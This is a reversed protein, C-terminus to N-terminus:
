SVCGGPYAAGRALDHRFDSVRQPAMGTPHHAEDASFAGLVKRAMEVYKAPTYWENDGTGQTGRIKRKEHRWLDATLQPNAAIELLRRATREGFGLKERNAELWPLWEGHSNDAVV